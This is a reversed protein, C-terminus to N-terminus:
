GGSCSEIMAVIHVIKAKTVAQKLAKRTVKLQAAAAQEHRKRAAAAAGNRKAVLEMM